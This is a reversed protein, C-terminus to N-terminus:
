ARYAWAETHGPLILVTDGAVADDLADQLIHHRGPGTVSVSPREYVWVSDDSRPPTSVVILRGGGVSLQRTAAEVRRVISDYTSEGGLQAGVQWYRRVPEAAIVIGGIGLAKLLGRRTVTTM